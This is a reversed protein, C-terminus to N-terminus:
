RDEVEASLLITDTAGEDPCQYRHTVRGNLESSSVPTKVSGNEVGSLEASVNLPSCGEGADGIIHSVFTIEKGTAKLSTVPVPATIRQPQVCPYYFELQHQCAGDSADPMVRFVCLRRRKTDFAIAYGLASSEPNQVASLMEFRPVTYDVKCIVGDKCIIWLYNKSEWCMYSLEGPLKLTGFREPTTGINRWCDLNWATAGALYGDVRNVVAQAYVTKPSWDKYPDASWGGTVRELSNANIEVIATTEARTAYIKNYSGMSLQNTYSMGWVGVFSEGDGMNVHGLVDEENLWEGTDASFEYRRADWGPWPTCSLMAFMKYADASPDYVFKVRSSQMTQNFHKPCVLLAPNYTGQWQSGTWTRPVAVQNCVVNDVYSMCPAITQVAWLSM